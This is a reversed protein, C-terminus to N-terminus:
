LYPEILSLRMIYPEILSLQMKYPEILSLRMKYTEILSLSMMYILGNIFAFYAKRLLWGSFGGGIYVNQKLRM